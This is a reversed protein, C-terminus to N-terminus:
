KSFRVEKRRKMKERLAYLVSLVIISLPILLVGLRVEYSRQKVFELVIEKEGTENIYYGNLFSYVPSLHKLSRNSCAEWGNDFSDGFVLFCPASANVKIIYKTPNIEKYSLNISAPRFKEEGTSPKLMILDVSVGSEAALCIRNQGSTLQVKMNYWLFDESANLMLSTSEEGIRISMNRMLASQARIYLNYEETKPVYIEYPLFGYFNSTVVLGQSVNSSFNDSISWPYGFIRISKILFEYVKPNKSCDIGWLKHPLIKLEVLNYYKKNPFDKKLLEYANFVYSHLNTSSPFEFSGPYFVTPRGDGFNVTFAIQVIQVKPDSVNYTLEIYPYKRLDIPQKERAMAVFEDESASGNFYASVRVADSTLNYHYDCQQSGFSWDSVNNFLWILGNSENVNVLNKEAELIFSVNKNQMIEQVHDTAEKMIEKPVVAVQTIVNVGKGDNKISIIHNGAGLYSSNVETWCFGLDSSTRTYLEGKKEGDILIELSSGNVGFFPKIWFEYEKQEQTSFLVQLTANSRTIVWSNATDLYFWDYWWYSASTSWDTLLDDGKAYIDLNIKYEDPISAFVLDNFGNNTIIINSLFDFYDKADSHSLQDAMLIASDNFGFDKLYSLSVFSALGGTMLTASNTAFIKNVMYYENQYIDITGIKKILKIGQQHEISDKLTVRNYPGPLNSWLWNDADNRVIIYKVGAMALMKALYKTTNPHYLTSIVFYSFGGDAGLNLFSPKPSFSAMVDRQQYDPNMWDYRTYMDPPLWLVRFDDTQNSLWKTVDHYEEAFSVAQLNGGFDGSFFPWSYLFLIIPMLILFILLTSTFSLRKSRAKIKFTFRNGIRSSLAGLWEVTESLLLAFAFSTLMVWKNPERFAQFYPVNLFAWQYVQGLPPNVGKGLFISVVALLLFSFTIKNRGKLLPTIFVLIPVLFSLVVWAPYSAPVANSFWQMVLGQLRIVNSVQAVESRWTLDSLVLPVGTGVGTVPFIIWYGRVIFSIVLSRVNAILKRKREHFSFAVDMISYFILSVLIIAFVVLNVFYTSLGILLSCLVKIEWKKNDISEVFLYFCLPLLIYGVMGNLDGAVIRDFLWPTLM